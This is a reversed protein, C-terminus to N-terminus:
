DDDLFHLDFGIFYWRMGNLIVIILFVLLWFHQYLYPSFPVCIWQQHFHFNACGSYFVTCFKRLVILFLIIMYYLLGVELYTDWFNFIVTEFLYRCDWKWKLSTVNALVHFCGLHGYNYLHIFFIHHTHTYIYIHTHTHTHTHTHIYIYSWYILFTSVHKLFVTTSM